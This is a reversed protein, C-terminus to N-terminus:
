AHYLVQNKLKSRTYLIGLTKKARTAGVYAVRSEDDFANGINQAVERYITPTSETDLWVHDAEGGKVSHVTGVTIRPVETTYLNTLNDTITTKLSLWDNLIVRGALFPMEFGLRPLDLLTFEEALDEHANWNSIQKKVGHKLNGDTKMGAVLAKLQAGSVKQGNQLRHYTDYAQWPKTLQPNWYHDEIRYPNHWITNQNKLWPIWHQRVQYNCRCLIMHTGPLSLDPEVCSIVQGEGNGMFPKYVVDERKKINRIISQAYELIKPPVRYSQDLLKSWGADISMFVEPSVGAFRFISQDGDGVYVTTQNRDAWMRTLCYQLATLDQAEDILLVDTDPALGLRYCKELVGTFDILDNERLYEMWDTYLDQCHSPWKEYPLMQQRCIQMAGFTKSNDATVPDYSFHDDDAGVSANPLEWKPYKECFKRLAENINGPDCIQKTNLGLMRFAHSHVTRVNDPVQGSKKRIRDSVTQVAAKTFSIAGIRDPSYKELAGDILRMIETTKGTGPPGTVKGIKVM